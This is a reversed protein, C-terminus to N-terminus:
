KPKPVIRGSRLIQQLFQLNKRAHHDDREDYTREMALRTELDTCVQKLASRFRQKPTLATISPTAM